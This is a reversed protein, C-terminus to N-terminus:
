CIIVIRESEFVRKISGGVGSYGAHRIVTLFRNFLYLGIFGILLWVPSQPHMALSKPIIHLFSASVLLGAAFGIFYTTNREGCATFRRITKIDLSTVFATVTTTVLATWFINQM